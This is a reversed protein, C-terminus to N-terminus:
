IDVGLDELSYSESKQEVDVELDELTYLNDKKLQEDVDLDEITYPPDESNEVNVELEDLTYSPQQSTKSDSQSTIEIEDNFIFDVTKKKRYKGKLEKGVSLVEM